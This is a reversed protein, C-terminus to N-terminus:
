ENINNNVVKLKTDSKCVIYGPEQVFNKYNHYQGPAIDYESVLAIKSM